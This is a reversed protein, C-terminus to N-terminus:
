RSLPHSFVERLSAFVNQGRKRFSPIVAQVRAHILVGEVTRFCGGINFGAKSPRPEREAQKVSVNGIREAIIAARRTNRPM